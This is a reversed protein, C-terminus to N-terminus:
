AAEMFLQQVSWWTREQKAHLFCGWATARQEGALKSSLAGVRDSAAQVAAQETAVTAELGAAAEADYPLAALRRECDTM